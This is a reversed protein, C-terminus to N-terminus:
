YVTPYKENFINVAMDKIEEPTLNVMQSLINKDTDIAPYRDKHDSIYKVMDKFIQEDAYGHPDAINGMSSYMFESLCYFQDSGYAMESLKQRYEPIASIKKFQADLAHQGEHTLIQSKYYDDIMLGATYTKLNDGSLGIDKGQQIRSDVYKLMFLNSLYSSYYVDMTEKEDPNPSCKKNDSLVKNRLTDNVTGNYMDIFNQHEFIYVFEGAKLTWGGTGGQNLYYWHNFGRSVLDRITTVKEDAEKGWQSIKEMDENIVYGFYCDLFGNVPFYTIIVGFKDEINRNIEDFREKSFEQSKKIDPFISAIKDYIPMLDKYLNNQVYGGKVACDRYYSDLYKVMDNRFTVFAEAEALEKRAAEMGEAAAKQLEIAAEDYLRLKFYLDGMTYHDKSGELAKKYQMDWEGIYGIPAKGEAAMNYAKWVGYASGYKQDEVYLRHLTKSIGGNLPNLGFGEELTKVAEDRKELKLYSQALKYYPGSLSKYKSLATKYSEISKNYDGAASYIDGQMEYYQLNEPDNDIAKQIHLIAPGYNQYYYYELQALAYNAEPIDPNEKLIEENIKKAGTLNYQTWFKQSDMLKKSVEPDIKASATSCASLILGAMLVFTILISLKKRM